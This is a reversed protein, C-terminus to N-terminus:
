NIDMKGLTPIYCAVICLVRYTHLYYTVARVYIRHIPVYDTHMYMYLGVIVRYLCVSYTDYLPM